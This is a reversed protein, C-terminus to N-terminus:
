GSAVRAELGAHRAVRLAPRALRGGGRLTSLREHTKEVLHHRIAIAFPYGGKFGHHEFYALGNQLLSFERIEDLKNLQASGKSHELWLLVFCLLLLRAHQQHPCGALCSLFPLSLVTLGGPSFGGWRLELICASRPRGAM